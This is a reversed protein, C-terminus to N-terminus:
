VTAIAVTTRLFSGVQKTEKRKVDMWERGLRGGCADSEKAAERCMRLSGAEKCNRM